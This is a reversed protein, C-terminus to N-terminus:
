SLNILYADIYHNFRQYATLIYGLMRGTNFM